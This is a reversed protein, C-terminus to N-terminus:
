ILRYLPLSSNKKTAWLDFSLQQSMTIKKEAISPTLMSDIRSSKEKWSKMRTLSQNIQAAYLKKCLRRAPIKKQQAPNSSTKKVLFGMSRGVPQTKKSCPLTGSAHPPHAATQAPHRPWRIQLSVLDALCIIHSGVMTSSIQPIELFFCLCGAMPCTAKPMPTKSFNQFTGEHCTPAHWWSAPPDHISLVRFVNM